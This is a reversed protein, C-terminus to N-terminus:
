ERNLGQEDTRWVPVVFDPHDKHPCDCNIEGSDGVAGYRYICGREHNPRDPTVGAEKEHIPEIKGEALWIPFMEEITKGPKITLTEKALWGHEAGYRKPDGIM